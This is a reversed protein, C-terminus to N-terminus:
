RVSKWPDYPKNPLTGLSNKYATDDVKKKKQDEARQPPPHRKGGGSMGQAAASAMMLALALGTLIGRM